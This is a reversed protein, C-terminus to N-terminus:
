LICGHSSIAAYVCVCRVNADHPDCKHFDYKLLSRLAPLVKRPKPVKFDASYVAIVNVSSGAMELAMGTVKDPLGNPSKTRGVCM